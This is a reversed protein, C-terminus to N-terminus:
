LRHCQGTSEWESQPSAPPARRRQSSTWWHAPHLSPEQPAPVIHVALTITFPFSPSGEDTVHTGNVQTLAVFFPIRFRALRQLLLNAGAFTLLFIGRTDTIDM